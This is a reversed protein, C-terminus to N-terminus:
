PRDLRGRDDGLIRDVVPGLGRTSAIARKREAASLGPGPRSQLIGAAAAAARLRDQRTGRDADAAADLIETALANLSRGDRAARATLRRHVDDPVRLLIQKMATIIASM